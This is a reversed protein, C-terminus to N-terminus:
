CRIRVRKYQSLIKFFSKAYDYKFVDGVRSYRLDSSETVNSGILLHCDLIDDIVYFDVHKIHVADMILDTSIKHAVAKSNDKSFGQPLVPSPLKITMLLAKNVLSESILSCSSGTEIFAEHKFGNISINKDIKKPDTNSITFIFKTEQKNEM